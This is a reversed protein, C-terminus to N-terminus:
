VQFFIWNKKLKKLLFLLSINGLFYNWEIKCFGGDVSICWLPNM